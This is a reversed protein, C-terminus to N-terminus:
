LFPQLRGSQILEKVNEASLVTVVADPPVEDSKSLVVGGDQAIVRVVRNTFTDKYTDGQKLINDAVMMTMRPKVTESGFIRLLAHSSYWRGNFARYSRNGVQVLKGNPPSTRRAGKRYLTKGLKKAFWGQVARKQIGQEFRAAGPITDALAAPSLLTCVVALAMTTNYDTHRKM